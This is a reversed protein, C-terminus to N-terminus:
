PINIMITQTGRKTTIEQKRMLQTGVYMYINHEEEDM